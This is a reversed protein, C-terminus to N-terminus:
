GRRASRPSADRGRVHLRRHGQRGVRVPRARGCSGGPSCGPHLCSRAGAARCGYWVGLLNVRVTQEFVDHPLREAVGADAVGANNVMIDVRGFRDCAGAVLAEVQDADTVDCTVAVATGGAKAIRDAVEELRETRRAAVVVNAGAGALAEAMTVGLGSSGGTVVATRGSVDFLGNETPM